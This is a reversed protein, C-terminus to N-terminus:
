NESTLRYNEERTEKDKKKKWCWTCRTPNAWKLLYVWWWLSYKYIWRCYKCSLIVLAIIILFVIITTISQWVWFNTLLWYLMFAGSCSTWETSKTEQVAPTSPLNSGSNGQDVTINQQVTTNFLVEKSDIQTGNSNKLVVYWTYNKAETNTTHVEFSSNSINLGAISLTQSPVSLVGNTWNDLEVYFNSTFNDTNQIEFDIYGNKSMAEFGNARIDASVITGNAILKFFVLSDASMEITILTTQTDTSVYSLYSNSTTGDVVYNINDPLFNSTVLYEPSNHNQIRTLDDTLLDYIQNALWTNVPQSWRQGQTQFATYGVGIKNWESGDFTIM